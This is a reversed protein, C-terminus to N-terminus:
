KRLIEFCSSSKGRCVVLCRIEFGFCSSSKGWGVPKMFNRLRHSKLFLFLCFCSSSKGWGVPCRIALATPDIKLFARSCRIGSDCFASTLKFFAGLSFRCFKLMMLIHPFSQFTPNLQNSNNVIQSVQVYRFPTSSPLM